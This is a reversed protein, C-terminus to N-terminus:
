AYKISRPLSALKNSNLYLRRLNILSGIDENLSYLVNSSVDLEELTTLTMIPDILVDIVNNRGV